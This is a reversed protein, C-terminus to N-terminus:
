QGAERAAEVDAGPDGRRVLEAEFMAYTKRRMGAILAEETMTLERDEEESADEIARITEYLAFIPGEGEVYLARAAEVKRIFKDKSMPGSIEGARAFLIEDVLDNAPEWGGSDEDLDLIWTALGGDPTPLM